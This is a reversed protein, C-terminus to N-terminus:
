SVRCRLITQHDKIKQSLEIQTFQSYIMIKQCCRNGEEPNSAAVIKIYCHRFVQPLLRDM